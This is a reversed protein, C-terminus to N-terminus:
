TSSYKRQVEADIFEVLTRISDFSDRLYERTISKYAGVKLKGDKVSELYRRNVIGMNHVHINRTAMIEVIREASVGSDDLSINFKKSFDNAVDKFSKNLLKKTEKEALYSVIQKREGLNLVTEATLKRASKLAEPHVLFIERVVDALYGEFITVLHSLGLVRILESFQRFQKAELPVFIDIDTLDEVRGELEDLRKGEAKSLKSRDMKELLEGLEIEVQSLEKRAKRVQKRLIIVQNGYWAETTGLFYALKDLNSEFIRYIETGSGVHPRKGNTM